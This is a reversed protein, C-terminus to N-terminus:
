IGFRAAFAAALVDMPGPRGSLAALDKGDSDGDGDFDITRVGYHPLAAGVEYAGLDPAPGSFDDNIGTLVVGANVANCNSNLTLFQFPMRAPPAAPIDLNEFCTDKDVRIGHSELGTAATFDALTVYKVGKWKLAYPSNGWDFGDYDLDLGWFPVFGDDHGSEWVYRDQMSIWLNNNSQFRSLFESGYTVVGSWGVFTNHAILARDGSRLKLASELPAAVQNRLVYWPAGNMPQFSIGNNKSNSIRNGWVRNNAYGYDIEVGDDSTDFIENGFIDCDAHPYSIGDATNSISNYAVVHGSTHELEIGEGSWCDSGSCAGPIQDGVITNDTIHWNSGGHNLRVAYHNSYFYNRTIVVGQPSSYTLLANARDRVTLGELWLYDGSVRIGSIATEGDGAGMWVVPNDPAGSVHFEIEGGYNGAHLLFIDGAAAINQAAAVGQFPDNETGSGGGSGPIVHFIRGEKPLRPVNRTTVTEMRNENGGDPDALSLNIEYSTASELFLVSGALTNAGNYDVRFLPLFNKWVSEGLKRYRVPCVADHNDDGIIQWEIGISNLTAHVSLTGPVTDDAACAWTAYVTLIALVAFVQNLYPNRLCNM